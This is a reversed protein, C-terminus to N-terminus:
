LDLQLVRVLAGRVLRVGRRLLHLGLDPHWREGDGQAAGAAHPQHSDHQVSGTKASRWALPWPLLRDVVMSNVPELLRAMSVLPRSRISCKWRLGVDSRWRM